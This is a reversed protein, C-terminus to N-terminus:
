SCSWTSCSVASAGHVDQAAKVMQPVYALVRLSNALTFARTDIGRTDVVWSTSQPGARVIRSDSPHILEFARSVTRGQLCAPGVLLTRRACHVTTIM